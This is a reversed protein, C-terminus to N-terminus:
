HFDIESMMKPPSYRIRGLKAFKFSFRPSRICYNRYASVQLLTICVLSHQNHMIIKLPLVQSM